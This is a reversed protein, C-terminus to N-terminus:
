IMRDEQRGIRLYFGISIGKIKKIIFSNNQIFYLSTPSLFVQFFVKDARGDM